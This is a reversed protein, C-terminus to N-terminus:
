RAHSVEPFSTPRQRAERQLWWATAFLALAAAQLSIDIGVTRLASVHLLLASTVPGAIQGVAFAATMRGIARTPDHAARVRAEQVGALTIVMFTGGVLVASLAIAVGHTWLSPLLAGAGMLAQCVAWVELCSRELCSRRQM